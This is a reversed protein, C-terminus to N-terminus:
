KSGFGTSRMAVPKIIETCETLWPNRKSGSGATTSNLENNWPSGIRLPEIVDNAKLTSDKSWNATWPNKLAMEKTVQLSCGKNVPKSEGRLDYANRPKYSKTHTQGEVSKGMFIIRESKTKLPPNEKGSVSKDSSFSSEIMSDEKEVKVQKQDIKM